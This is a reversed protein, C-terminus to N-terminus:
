GSVTQFTAALEQFRIETLSWFRDSTLLLNLASFERSRTRLM